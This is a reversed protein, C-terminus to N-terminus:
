GGFMQQETDQYAQQPKAYSSIVSLGVAALKFYNTTHRYHDVGLKIYTYTRSGSVEDKKLVKAMNSMELAYQEVEKSRRPLEFQGVTKILDHTGDCTETRRVTIIGEKQDLRQKTKLREQYDCLLIKYGEAKQFERAKRTEPEMDIVASVVNFRKALDHIDSFNSVRALKVIKYSKSSERCGIVVYLVKGVDVGMACPGSHRTCMADPGCCAYVDNKSLHNEAEVYGMGLDLNYFEQIDTNPNEFADLMDKPDIFSSILHSLWRGVMDKSRDPYQAVWQGNRPFIEKDRCHVCLRIVRNDNTRHLCEPFELELCTYKNCKDCKIMWVRQDSEQYKLEIGYDPLTPNAMYVEEKIESHSM